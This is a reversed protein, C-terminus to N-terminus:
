KSDRCVDYTTNNGQNTQEIQFKDMEHRGLCLIRAQDYGRKCSSRVPAEDTQERKYGESCKSATVTCNSTHRGSQNSAKASGLLLRYRELSM